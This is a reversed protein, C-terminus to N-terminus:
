GNRLWFGKLGLFVAQGNQPKVRPPQARREALIMFVVESKRKMNQRKLAKASVEGFFSTTHVGKVSFSDAANLSAKAASNSFLRTCSLM